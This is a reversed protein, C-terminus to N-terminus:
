NSITIQRITPGKSNKRREMYTYKQYQWQEQRIRAVTELVCLRMASKRLHRMAKVIKGHGRRHHKRLELYLLQARFAHVTM